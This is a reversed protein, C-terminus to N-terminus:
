CLTRSPKFQSSCSKGAAASGSHLKSRWHIQHRGRDEDPPTIFIKSGQSTGYYNWGPYHCGVFHTPHGGSSSIINSWVSMLYGTELIFICCFFLNSGQPVLIGEAPVPVGGPPGFEGRHPGTGRPPSQWSAISSQLNLCSFEYFKGQNPPIERDWQSGSM